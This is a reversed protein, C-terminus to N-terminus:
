FHALPAPLSARPILPCAQAAAGLQGVSGTLVWVPADQEGKAPPILDCLYVCVVCIYVVFVCVCLAHIHAPYYM